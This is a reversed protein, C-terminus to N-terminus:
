KDLFHCEVLLQDLSQWPLPKPRASENRPEVTAALPHQSAYVEGRTQKKSLSNALQRRSRTKTRRISRKPRKRRRSSLKTQTCAIASKPLLLPADSPNFPKTLASVDCCSTESPVAARKILTRKPGTQLSLDSM